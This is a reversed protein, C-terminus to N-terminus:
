VIGHTDGRAGPSCFIRLGNSSSQDTCIIGQLREVNGREEKEGEGNSGDAFVVEVGFVHMCVDM